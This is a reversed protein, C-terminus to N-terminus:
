TVIFKLNFKNRLEINNINRLDKLYKKFDKKIDILLKKPNIKINNSNEFWIPLEHTNNIIIRKRVMGLHFLGSRAENYLRTINTNSFEPYLRKISQKFLQNSSTINENLNRYDEVGEFYSMCIMLVVFGNKNGRLYYSARNLFWEKVQREYIIIKDDINSPNLLIDNKQDYAFYQNERYIGLIDPAINIDEDQRIQKPM